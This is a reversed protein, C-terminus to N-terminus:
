GGVSASREGDAAGRVAGRSVWARRGGREEAGCARDLSASRRRGLGGGWVGLAHGGKGRKGENWAGEVGGGGADGEGNSLNKETSSTPNGGGGGEDRSPKVPREKDKEKGRGTDRHDKSAASNCNNCSSPASNRPSAAGERRALLSWSASAPVSLPVKLESSTSGLRSSASGRATQAAHSSHRHKTHTNYTTDGGEGLAGGGGGDATDGETAIAAHERAHGSISNSITNTNSANSANSTNRACGSAWECDDSAGFFFSKVLASGSLQQPAALLRAIYRQLQILVCASTHPSTYLPM